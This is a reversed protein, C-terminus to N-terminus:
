GAFAPLNFLYHLVIFVVGDLVALGFALYANELSRGDRRAAQGAASAVVATVIALIFGAAVIGICGLVIAAVGLPDGPKKGSNDAGPQTGADRRASLERRDPDAAPDDPEAPTM